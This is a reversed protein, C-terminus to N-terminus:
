TIYYETTPWIIWHSVEAWLSQGSMIHDTLVAAKDMGVHVREIKNLVGIDEHDGYGVGGCGGGM